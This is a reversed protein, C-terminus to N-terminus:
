DKLKKDTSVTTKGVSLMNAFLKYAGTVGAPLERFFSLGTYIYTGKGYPAILLSGKKETEGDDQMGLVPTFEKSWASPFYLGREQIWGNFDDDSIKNPFNLLSNKKDLIHVRANEDTVRDRSLTLDFPAINEFQDSWRGATNYQVIMTGGNKVYDLLNKQKFKLETVVNYARIGLVIADYKKLSADSISLPDIEQVTYGIQKLSEPVKDGAGVIYGIYQGAKKIDLRVVKTEAPMLVTQEPIHDYNISILEKSIEFGDIKVIPSLYSEDQTAPPTVTFILTMEDNKKAITFPL